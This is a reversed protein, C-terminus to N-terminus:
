AGPKDSFHDKFKNEVGKWDDADAPAEKKRSINPWKAAYDRNLEL